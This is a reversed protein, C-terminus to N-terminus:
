RDLFLVLGSFLAFLQLVIAVEEFQHLIVLHLLFYVHFEVSDHADEELLLGVSSLAYFCFLGGELLLVLLDVFLVYQLPVAVKFQLIGEGVGFALISELQDIHLRLFVVNVDLADDAEKNYDPLLYQQGYGM